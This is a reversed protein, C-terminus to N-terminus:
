GASVRPDLRAVAVDAVLSFVLVVAAAILIVPEVEFPDADYLAFVLYNALGEQRFVYDAVLSAGFVGGFDLTMISIFPVLSNRLAHRVVVRWEPLGKARATVAYQESLSVLMASRVYRSYAGVFGAAITLVPLTLYQAWVRVYHFGTGAQSGPLGALAFPQFHHAYALQTFLYQLGLALLFAPVSWALYSGTRLVVDLASGPRAAAISGIGLSLLTVVLISLGILLATHRAAKWVAPWIKQGVRSQRLIPKSVNPHGTVSGKVWLWYRKAIPDHIHFQRQLKAIEYPHPNPQLKWTPDLRVGILVFALFSIAVFVVAALFVRRVLFTLV